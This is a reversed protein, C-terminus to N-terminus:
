FRRGKGGRKAREYVRRERGEEQQVRGVIRRFKEEYARDRGKKERLKERGVFEADRRLERVAGRKERKVEKRLRASRSREPDPDYRKAPHFSSTSEFFPISLKIPLPKHAHLHLPRRLLQSHNLLKRLTSLTTTSATRIAPSHPHTTLNTLVSTARPTFIEIFAPSASWLHALATINEIHSLPISDDDRAATSDSPLSLSHELAALAFRLAEPIYRRSRAQYKTLLGVLYAGRRSTVDDFRTTTGLWRAAILLAPTVVQHFHDSTPFISGIATLILLDGRNMVHPRTHMTSLHTRFAGAVETPYSRALSHVHRIIDNTVPLPPDTSPTDSGCHAIHEVLITAFTALKQKNSANLQPHYLSRIRQIVTPHQDFPINALIKALEAHSQPCPYTYALEKVEASSGVGNAIKTTEDEPLVDKLFEADDDDEEIEDESDSREEDDAEAVSIADSDIESGSAVLGDDIVFEDEDEVDREADPMRRSATFGFGAAEDIEEDEADAVDKGELGQDDIDGDSNETQEGRMRRLRDAELQKLREADEAATEEATKTRTSPQAKKDQTMQRLQQDYDADDVKKMMAVRDPHVDNSVGNVKPSGPLQKPGESTKDLKGRGRLAALLDPMASDLEERLDEDEERAQQREHKHLKSKAMVEEMIEKKSKKVQAAGNVQGDRDDRAASEAEDMLRLRKRRPGDDDSEVSNRHQGYDDRQDHGNLVPRGLHTLGVEEGGDDNMLGDDDELNFVGSRKSRKGGGLQAIARRRAKEEPALTPDDEGIRRDNFTGVKNRRQLEPLLTTERIRNAKQQATEKKPAFNSKKIGPAASSVAKKNQSAKPNRRAHLDAKLRKLQSPAM